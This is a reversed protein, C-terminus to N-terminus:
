FDDSTDQLGCISHPPFMCHILVFNKKIMWTCKKTHEKFLSLFLSKEM